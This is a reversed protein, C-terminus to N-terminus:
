SRGAKRGTINRYFARAQDLVDVLDHLQDPHPFNGATGALTEFRDLWDLCWAADVARAVAHGAVDIWVPSTHAYVQPGLLAPHGSGRAVAAIWTPEAIDLNAALETTGADPATDIAALVGTPGLIELREVGVGTVRATVSVQRPEDLTVTDGLGQGGANLELWPGNTAFTRAARVADQWAAVSLPIDGLHAYARSWGPPNSKVGDRSHSLFADTGATAALRLGCGLLRHYLQETAEPGWITHNGTLDMSDVLGLAADAVLERAHTFSHAHQEAFVEEIPFGSDDLSAHVPHAYSITAGHSRCEAAAVANPPWDQPENSRRHGTHYRSPPASLNLATFHGLMNNRYEIGWRAVTDQDSWPLDQGAFYELAERDYILSTASNAAVLNMLHLGEGQQMRAADRPTCVLDGSYNMHVHLDGGYWGRAAADYLRVPSVEVVEQAGAVVNVEVRSPLFECGRGVEVVTTGVPVELTLDNGHFFPRGYYDYKRLVNDPFWAGGREDRVQWRSMADSVLRLTASAVPEVARVRGGDVRIEPQDISAVADVLALPADIGGLVFVQYPVPQRATAFPLPTRVRVDAGRVLALGVPLPDPLADVVAEVVATPNTGPAKLGQLMKRAAVVRDQDCWGLLAHLAKSLAGEREDGWDYGREVCLARYGAVMEAVVPPMSEDECCM